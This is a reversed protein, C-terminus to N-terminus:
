TSTFCENEPQHMDLNLSFTCFLEEPLLHFCSIGFGLLGYSLHPCIFHPLYFTRYLNYESLQLFFFFISYNWHHSLYSSPLFLAAVTWSHHSFTWHTKLFDLFCGTHSNFAACQSRLIGRVATLEVSSRSCELEM